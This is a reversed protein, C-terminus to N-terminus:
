RTASFRSGPFPSGEVCHAPGPATPSPGATPIESPTSDPALLPPARAASPRLVQMLRRTAQVSGSRRGAPTAGLHNLVLYDLGGPGSLGM